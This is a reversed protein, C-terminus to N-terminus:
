HCQGSLRASINLEYKVKNGKFTFSNSAKSENKLKKLQSQTAAEKGELDRTFAAFKQDFKVDLLQSVLKLMQYPRIHLFIVQNLLTEPTTLKWLPTLSQPVSVTESVSMAYFVITSLSAKYSEQMKFLTIAGQSVKGARRLYKLLIICGLICIITLSVFRLFIHLSEGALCSQVLNELEVM